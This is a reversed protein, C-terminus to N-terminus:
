NVGSVHTNENHNVVSSFRLEFVGMLGRLILFNIYTIGLIMRKISETELSKLYRQTGM